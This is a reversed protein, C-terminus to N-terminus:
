GKIFSYTHTDAVVTEWNNSGCNCFITMKRVGPKKKQGQPCGTGAIIVYYTAHMSLCNLAQWVGRLMYTTFLDRVSAM